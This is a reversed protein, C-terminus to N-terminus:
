FKREELLWQRIAELSLILPALHDEPKNAFGLRSRKGGCTLGKRSRTTTYIQTAPQFYFRRPKARHMNRPHDNEVTM